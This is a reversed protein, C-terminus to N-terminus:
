PCLVDGSRDAAVQAAGICGALGGLAAARVLPVRQFTLRRAVAKELPGLLLEGAGALGGGIVVVEPAVVTAIWALASALAEVAEDWVACALQDGGAVLKAVEEANVAGYRSAIASASAVAELCGTGGCTCPEAHGVDVHGLEGAFGPVVRGDVTYAAAIGTGVPVFVVSRAGRGSGFRSEALGGARVDHAFAVPRGLREELLTAFPVDQWGLNTSRVALGQREDVVGPVAVGVPGEGLEAVAEAVVDLVQGVVEPGKSPTPASWSALVTGYFDTRVAKVGTGGVDVGILM